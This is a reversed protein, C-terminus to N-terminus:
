KSRDILSSSINIQDDLYKLFDFSAGGRLKIDELIKIWEEFVHIRKPDKNLKDISEKLKKVNDELNKIKKNSINLEYDHYM